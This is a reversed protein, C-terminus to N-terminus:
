EVHTKSGPKIKGVLFHNFHSGGPGEGGAIYITDGIVCVGADNLVGGVPLPNDIKLWRDEKTDYVFALDNWRKSVGGIIVIYRRKYPAGEWGSIAVPSDTLRRWQNRAPDYCLSDKLKIKSGRTGKETETLTLGGLIYLKGDLSASACWGRPPGPIPARMAWGSKPSQLDLVETTGLLTRSSYGGEAFDYRNGGAVILQDGVRGVAMHTRPTNLSAATKWHLPKRSTNLRFVDARPEYNVGDRPKQIGGGILYVDSGAAISRTYERRGPLDPLRTWRDSKPDYRHVWRSTRRGPDQTEDGAPIFGGALHIQGGVVVMGAGSVGAHPGPEVLPIEMVSWEIRGFSPLDRVAEPAEKSLARVFGSQQVAQERAQKRAELKPDDAADAAVTIQIALTVSLLYSVRHRLKPLPPRM